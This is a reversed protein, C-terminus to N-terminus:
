DEFEIFPLMDEHTVERGQTRAEEAFRLAGKIDVKKIKEKYCLPDEPGVYLLGDPEDLITKENVENEMNCARCVVRRRNQGDKREMIGDIM